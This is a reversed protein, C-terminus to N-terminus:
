LKKKFSAPNGFWLEKQPINKTVVSGMGVKSFSGIEVFDRITSGANIEVNDGIKVSGCITVNAMIIVNNGIEVNHGIHVNNNIKVNNHIITNKLNGRCISVNSGIFVNDGIILKGNHHLREFSIKFDFDIKEFSFGETGLTSGANIYIKKGIEVNEYIVVNEQIVPQTGIKKTYIFNNKNINQLKPVKLCKSNAFFYNSLKFMTLRPNKSIIFTKDNIIKKIKSINLNCIIIRSKCNKLFLIKDEINKENSIWIISDKNDEDLSKINEFVLYKKQTIIKLDPFTLNLKKTSIKIM